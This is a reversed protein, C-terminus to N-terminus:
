SSTLSLLDIFMIPNDEAKNEDTDLLTFGAKSYFKIAEQKSDTILFRCGIHTAIVDVVIALAFALLNDGIGQGRLDKHVALRAIKTAPLTDYTNAYKCDEVTYGNRIDIESATLSIFGLVEKKPCEILAGTTPDKIITVAVYTKAICAQHFDKAQKQLFSKLPQFKADGLSLKSVCDAAELSRIIYDKGLEM